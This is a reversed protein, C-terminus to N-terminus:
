LDYYLSFERPHPWRQVRRLEASKVEIWKEVLERPFVDGALLYEHDAALAALAQSLDSPAATIKDRQEEPLSFLDCSYPGFGLETAQRKHLIGEAGAMVMAAYALYPNCTADGTRLEIRREDASAYMPVRIAASRNGEGFTFSVPAEYGPVLRRYSNTSPNTLGMLSPGHSLIGGIYCLAADSLGGRDEFLSTGDRSLFQHVHLGSGAQDPIPKPMFTATLGERKAATRVINKIRMTADAMELLGAFGLEIEAQGLPGVEHHHYKVDIGLKEVQLCIDNRLAFLKDEPPCIHYYSVDDHENLPAIRVGTACASCEFAVDEFVYFEFEPSLRVADAIGQEVVFAEARAAIRRPDGVYPTGDSLRIDCIFSIISQNEVVEESSTALDPVITLDSGAIGAYGFNSGDFAVGTEVLREDLRRAPITIHRWRGSLDVVKLDVFQADNRAIRERAHELEM